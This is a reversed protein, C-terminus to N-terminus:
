KRTSCQIKGEIKGIGEVLLITSDLKFEVHETQDINIREQGNLYWAQGYWDGAMDSLKAMAEKQIKASSQGISTGYSILILLITITNKM